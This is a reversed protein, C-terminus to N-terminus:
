TWLRNWSCVTGECHPWIHKYNWGTYLPYPRRIYCNSLDRTSQLIWSQLLPSTGLALQSKLTYLLPGGHVQNRDKHPKVSQCVPCLLSLFLCLSFSFHKFQGLQLFEISPISWFLMQLTNSWEWNQWREFVFQAASFVNLLSWVPGGKSLVPWLDM